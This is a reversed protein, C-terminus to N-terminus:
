FRLVLEAGAGRPAPILRIAVRSLPVREWRETKIQSGVVGGAAVVGAIFLPEGVGSEDLTGFAAYLGVVAGWALV